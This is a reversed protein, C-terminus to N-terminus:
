CWPRCPTSGSWRRPRRLRWRWRTISRASSSSTPMVSRIIRTRSLRILAEIQSNHMTGLLGETGIGANNVLGYLPGYARRVEQVLGPLAEIDALDCAMFAIAGPGAAAVDRARALDDGPSRAVAVVRYGAAALRGAIGLGLGRSGGTVLVNRM